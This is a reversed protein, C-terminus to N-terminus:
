HNSLRLQDVFLKAQQRLAEISGAASAATVMAVRGKVNVLETYVLKGDPMRLDACIRDKENCTMRAAGMEKMFRGKVDAFQPARIPVPGYRTDDLVMVFRDPRVIPVPEDSGVFLGVLFNSNIAPGLNPDKTPDIMWAQWGAPVKMSLSSSPMGDVHLPSSGRPRCALPGDPDAAERMAVSRLTAPQKGAADPKLADPYHRELMLWRDEIRYRLESTPGSPQESSPDLPTLQLVGPATVELRSLTKTDGNVRNHCSGRARTADLTMVCDANQQYHKGDVRTVEVQQSRWCGALAEDGAAMVSICVLALAAGFCSRVMSAINTRCSM